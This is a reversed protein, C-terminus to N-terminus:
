CSHVETHDTGTDFDSLIDVDSNICWQLSHIHVEQNKLVAGLGFHPSKKFKFINKSYVAYM